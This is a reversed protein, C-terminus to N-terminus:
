VVDSRLVFHFFEVSVMRFIRRSKRKMFNKYLFKLTQHNTNIGKFNQGFFIFKLNM